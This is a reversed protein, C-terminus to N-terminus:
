GRAQRPTRTRSALTRVREFFRRTRAIDQEIQERLLEASSFKMEARLRRHFRTELRGARLTENFGLLHSEVMLQQGDFTPRIGVNTASPYIHQNVSTETIYVGRAPLCEQDPNLNLTPIGVRRGRGEGPQIAGTLAFPRGLLRGARDVEGEAILHRIFTSSVVQRRFVVPPLIHLEFGLERALEGLVSVDGAQRHGFRFNPGVYLVRAELARGLVDSVFDRPSLRALELTFPLVLTADLGLAALLELRQELTTLLPPASEPHLIKAPHPDLTIGWAELGRHRGAAVVQRVLEQHGRHVGDFNGITAVVGPRRAPLADLARYVKV